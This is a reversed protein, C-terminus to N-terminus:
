QNESLIHRFCKRKEEIASTIERGELDLLYQRLLSLVTQSFKSKDKNAQNYQKILLCYYAVNSSNLFLISQSFNQHIADEFSMKQDNYDKDVYYLTDIGEKSRCFLWHNQNYDLFLGAKSATFMVEFLERIEEITKFIAVPCFLFKQLALLHQEVEVFFTVPYHRGLGSLDQMRERHYRALDFYEPNDDPNKPFIRISFFSGQYTKVVRIPTTNGGSLRYVEYVEFGGKSNLLESEYLAIQGAKSLFTDLSVEIIKVPESFLSADM